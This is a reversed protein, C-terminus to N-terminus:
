TAQDHFWCAVCQDSDQGVASLEPREDVCRRMVRAPKGLVTVDVAQDADASGALERTLSCRPHFACGTPPNVPSPVEGPLVIRRTGSEGPAPPKPSPVASLLARTYPHRPNSYIDDRDALASSSLSRALFAQIQSKPNDTPMVTEGAVRKGHGAAEWGM